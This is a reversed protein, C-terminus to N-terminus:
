RSSGRLLADMQDAADRQLSPMVHSYTNLTLRIDSHGLIEMVVRASVGQALLFSACSHRLDHWRFPPLGASTLLRKFDRTTGCGDRPQGHRTTFVFGTDQWAAGAALRQEKQKTRHTRLVSVIQDPLALTRRSRETKLEVLQRQKDVVQLGHRVDITKRELDVDAWQLGLAEGQRLGCALSVAILPYLRRGSIASLFDRAQDPTLPRIERHAMRPPTVLAAVNRPVLGWKTAQTLARRLVAHLYQVTRPTLTSPPTKRTTTLTETSSDEVAAQAPQPKRVRGDALQDNLFRQVHQPSLKALPYGAAEIHVGLDQATAAEVDSFDDRELELGASEPGDKALDGLRPGVADLDEVGPHVAREHGAAVPRPLDEDAAAVPDPDLPV